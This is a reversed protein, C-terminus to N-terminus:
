ARWPLSWFWGFGKAAKPSTAASPCEVDIVAYGDIHEHDNDGAGPDVSVRSAVLQTSCSQVGISYRKKELTRTSNVSSTKLPDFWRPTHRHKRASNSSWTAELSSVNLQPSLSAVAYTYASASVPYTPKAAVGPRLEGINSAVTSMAVQGDESEFIGLCRSGFRGLACELVQHQWTSGWFRSM